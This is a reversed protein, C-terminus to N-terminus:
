SIIGSYLNRGIGVAFLFDGWLGHEIDAAIISCTRHYRYAFLMGGLTSLTLAIWIGYFAYVLDVSIGNCIVLVAENPFLASYRTFFFVRFVLGQPIAALLPYLVMM